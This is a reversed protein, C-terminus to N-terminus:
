QTPMTEGARHSTKTNYRADSHRKLLCLREDHAAAIFNAEYAPEHIIDEDRYMEEGIYPVSIFYQRKESGAGVFSCSSAIQMRPSHNVRTSTFRFHSRSFDIDCM